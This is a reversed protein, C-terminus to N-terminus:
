TNFLFEDNLDCQRTSIEEKRRLYNRNAAAMERSLQQVMHFPLDRGECLCAPDLNSVNQCSDAREPFINASSKHSRSRHLTIQLTINRIWEICMTQILLLIVITVTLILLFYLIPSRHVPVVCSNQSHYEM